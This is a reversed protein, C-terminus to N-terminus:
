GSRHLPEVNASYRGGAAVLENHKGEEVLHGKEM